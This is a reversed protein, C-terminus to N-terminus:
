DLLTKELELHQACWIMAEDHEFVISRFPKGKENYVEYFSGQKETLEKHKRLQKKLEVEEDFIKLVKLYCMALHLWITGHEYNKNILNLSSWEMKDEKNNYKLAFPEDLKRQKMKNMAKKFMKKDKVIGTWFPFVNADGSIINKGSLDDVFYNKKWFHKIIIEKYDYKQLPSKIGIKKLNNAFLGLFCNVYCSSQQKAMDKMSSFIKNKRLLGTEKDIHEEYIIKAQKEFFKKYKNILNQDKTLIISNLMYSASEPTYCPFDLPKGRTNIQTTIKNYKVYIKMAYNITNIVEKKYGLNILSECIMGFDRIYFQNFNNPSVRFYKNKKDYCDKIIQECIQKSNGKYKKAGFFQKKKSRFFLKLGDEILLMKNKIKMKM